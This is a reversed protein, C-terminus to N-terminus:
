DNPRAVQTCLVSVDFRVHQDMADNNEEDDLFEYSVDFEASQGALVVGAQTPYTIELQEKLEEDSTKDIISVSYNFAVDGTNYITFTAHGQMEPVILIDSFIEGSFVSLDVGKQQDYGEYGSLDIDKDKIWLGDSDLEDRVMEKMYLEASLSGSILHVNVTKQSNYLALTTGVGISVFMTAALISGIIPTRKKM